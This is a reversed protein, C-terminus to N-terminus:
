RRTLYHELRQLLKKSARTLQASPQASCTHPSSVTGNTGADPNLIMRFLMKHKSCKECLRVAAAEGDINKEVMIASSYCATMQM